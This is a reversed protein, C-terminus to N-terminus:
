RRHPRPALNKPLHPCRHARRRSEGIDQKALPLVLLMGMSANALRHDCCADSHGQLWESRSPLSARAGPMRHCDPGGGVGAHLRVHIANHKTIPDIAVSVVVNFHTSLAITRVEVSTRGRQMPPPGLRVRRLLCSQRTRQNYGDPTDTDTVQWSGDDSSSVLILGDGSFALSTVPGQHPDLEQELPAFVVPSGLVLATLCAGGVLVTRPLEESAHDRWQDM